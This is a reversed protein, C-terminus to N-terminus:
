LLSSYVCSFIKSVKFQESKLGGITVKQRRWVREEFMFTEWLLETEERRTGNEDIIFTALLKLTYTKEGESSDSTM